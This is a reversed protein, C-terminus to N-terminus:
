SIPNKHKFLNDFISNYVKSQRAPNVQNLQHHHQWGILKNTYVQIIFVIQM